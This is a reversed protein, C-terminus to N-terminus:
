PSPGPPLDYSKFFFDTKGGLIEVLGFPGTRLRSGCAMEKCPRCVKVHHSVTATVAELLTVQLKPKIELGNWYAQADSVGWHVFPCHKQGFTVVDDEIWRLTVRLCINSILLQFYLFLLKSVYIFATEIKTKTNLLEINLHLLFFLKYVFYSLRYTYVVM